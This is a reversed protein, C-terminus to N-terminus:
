HCDCMGVCVDALWTSVNVKGLVAGLPNDDCQDVMFLECPDGTEGLVTECGRSYWQGHFTGRGGEEWMYAIKTIYVPENDTEPCVSVTDGVCVQAPPSPHLPPPARPEASVEENNILVRSYFKRQGDVRGPKGM